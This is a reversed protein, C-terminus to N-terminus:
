QSSDCSGRLVCQERDLCFLLYGSCSLYPAAAAILLASGRVVSHRRKGQHWGPYQKSWDVKKAVTQWHICEWLSYCIKRRVVESSSFHHFSSSV